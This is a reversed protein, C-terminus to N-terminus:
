EEEDGQEPALSLGSMAAGYLTGRFEVEDGSALVFTADIMWRDLTNNELTASSSGFTVYCDTGCQITSGISASSGSCVNVSDTLKWYGISSITTGSFQYYLMRSLHGEDATTATCSIGFELPSQNDCIQQSSSTYGEIEWSNPTNTTGSVCLGFETKATFTDSFNANDISFVQYRGASYVTAYDGSHGTTRTSPLPVWQGGSTQYLKFCEWDNSCLNGTSTITVQTRATTIISLSSDAVTLDTITCAQPAASQVLTLQLFYHSDDQTLTVVCRRESGGTNETISVSVGTSSTTVSVWNCSESASFGIPSGNKTSTVSYTKASSHYDFETYDESISFIFVDAGGSANQYINMTEEEGSESQTFTIFCSRSTTTSTNDSVTITYSTAGTTVTLWNCSESVSYGINSGNKTSTIGYSYSAASAVIIDSHEDLEFVYTDATAANQTVVYTLENESENQELYITCSRSTNGTNESASVTFSTAGTTVTVWGCEATTYGINSGDKTSTIGVTRSQGSAAYTGGTSGITFVYESTPSEAAEQYYTFTLTEGNDNEVEIECERQYEYPNPDAYIRMLGQQHYEQITIWYCDTSATWGIEMAGGCVSEAECTVSPTCYDGEASGTYSYFDLEFVTEIIAPCKVLDEEVTTISSLFTPSYVNKDIGVVDKYGSYSMKGDVICVQCTEVIVDLEPDTSPAPCDESTIASVVGSMYTPSLPNDDTLRVIKYGSNGETHSPEYFMTECYSAFDPDEIWEPDTSPMPCSTTDQSREERTSGYTPSLENVDQYTEILYGSNIGQDTLECHSEVLQWNEDQLGCTTTDQIREERTTRYTPSNPNVDIYTIIKYGTNKAM